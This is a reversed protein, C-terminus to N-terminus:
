VTTGSGAPNAGGLLANRGRDANATYGLSPWLPGQAELALGRAQEVRAAAIRADYGGTLAERVLATLVPDRYLDWWGLDALSREDPASQGRFAAPTGTDPRRYNPGVECGALLALLVMGPALSRLRFGASRDPAARSAGPEPPDEKGAEAKTISLRYPLGRTRM